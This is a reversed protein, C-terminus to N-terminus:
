GDVFNRLMRAGDGGVAQALAARSPALGAMTACRPTLSLTSAPTPDPTPAPTPSATPSPTPDATPSPTPAGTPSPTPSHVCLDLVYWTCGRRVQAVRRFLSRARAHAKRGKWQVAVCLQRVLQASSRGRGVNYLPAHQACRPTPVPTPYPTPAATPSSTPSHVHWCLDLTCRGGKWGQGGESIGRM